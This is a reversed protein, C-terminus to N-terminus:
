DLLWLPILLTSYLRDREFTMSKASPTLNAIARTLEDERSFRNVAAPRDFCALPQTRFHIGDERKAGAQFGRV